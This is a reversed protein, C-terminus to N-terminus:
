HVPPAHGRRGGTLPDIGAPGRVKLHVHFASWCPRPFRLDSTITKALVSSRVELRELRELSDMGAPPRTSDDAKYGAPAPVPEYWYDVLRFGNARVPRLDIAAVYHHRGCTWGPNSVRTLEAYVGTVSPPISGKPAAPARKVIWGALSGFQLMSSPVRTLEVTEEVPVPKKPIPKVLPVTRLPKITQAQHAAGPVLTASLLAILFM